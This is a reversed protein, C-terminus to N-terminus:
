RNNPGLTPDDVELKIIPPPDIPRRDAIERAVARRTRLPYPPSLNACLLTCSMTVAIINALAAHCPGRYIFYCPRACVRRGLDHRAIPLLPIRARKISIGSSPPLHVVSLSPWRGKEGIGCMRSREPQQRLTLVYRRYLSHRWSVCIDLYGFRARM